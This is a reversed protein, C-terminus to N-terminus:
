RNNNRTKQRRLFDAYIRDTNGNDANGMHHTFKADAVIKNLFRFEGAVTDLCRQGNKQGKGPDDREKQENEFRCDGAKIM